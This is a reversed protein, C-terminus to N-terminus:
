EFLIVKKLTKVLIMYKYNEHTKEPRFGEFFWELILDSVKLFQHRFYTANWRQNKVAQAENQLTKSNWTPGFIRSLHMDM